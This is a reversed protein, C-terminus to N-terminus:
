IRPTEGVWGQRCPEDVLLEHGGDHCKGVVLVLQLAVKAEVMGAHAGTRFTQQRGKFVVKGRICRSASGREERTRVFGNGKSTSFLLGLSSETRDEWDREHRELHM